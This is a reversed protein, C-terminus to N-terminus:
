KKIEEPKGEATIKGREMAIVWDAIKLSFNLNHEILFITEKQKKLKLVAQWLLSHFGLSFL